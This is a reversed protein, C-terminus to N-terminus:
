KGTGESKKESAETRSSGPKGATANRTSQLSMTSPTSIPSSITSVESVSRTPSPFSQVTSRSERNGTLELNQLRQVLPVSGDEAEDEKRATQRQHGSRDKRRRERQEERARRLVERFVKRTARTEEKIARREERSREQQQPSEWRGWGTRGSGWHHSRGNLRTQRRSERLEDLQRRLGVAADHLERDHHEDLSLLQARVTALDSSSLESTTSLSDISSFSSDSSISATSIRRPRQPQPQPQPQQQPSQQNPLSLPTVPTPPEAPPLVAPPYGYPYPGNPYYAQTAPWEDRPRSFGGFMDEVKRGQLGAQEEIWRGHALAQEEVQRGYHEAQESIREGYKQAQSALSAIWGLPGGKSSPSTNQHQPPWPQANWGWPQQYPSPQPHYYPYHPAAPNPYPTAGYPAFPAPSVPTTPYAYPATPYATNAKPIPQGPVPPLGPRVLRGRGASQTVAARNDQSVKTASPYCKPCLPSLPANRQDTVYVFVICVARPEFFYRNWETIVASIRVRRQEDTEQPRDKRDRQIQARIQRSLQASTSALGLHPPFLYRLFTDWDQQTIHNTRPGWCRPRRPFDKSQSRPYITLQHERIPCEEDFVPPPREAFYAAASTFNAPPLPSTIAVELGSSSGDSSVTDNLANNGGRLRLLNRNNNTQSALPDVASYPPPAEDEPDM